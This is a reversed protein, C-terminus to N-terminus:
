RVNLVWFASDTRAKDVQIDFHDSVTRGEIDAFIISDGRSISAILSRRISVIAHVAGVKGGLESVPALQGRDIIANPISIQPGSAPAYIVPEGFADGLEGSISAFADDVLGM